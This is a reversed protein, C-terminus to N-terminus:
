TLWHAEHFSLLICVLPSIAQPKWRRQFTVIEGDTTVAMLSPLTCPRAPKVLGSQSEKEKPLQHLSITPIDSSPTLTVRSAVWLLYSCAKPSVSCSRCSAVPADFDFIGTSLFDDGITKKDNGKGSIESQTREENENDRRLPENQLGAFEREMEMMAMEDEWNEDPDFDPPPTSMHPSIPRSLGEDGMLLASTSNVVDKNTFITPATSTSPGEQSHRPSQAQPQQEFEFDFIDTPEFVLTKSSAEPM